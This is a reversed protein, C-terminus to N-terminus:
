LATSLAEMMDMRIRERNHEIEKRRDADQEKKLLEGLLNDQRALQGLM